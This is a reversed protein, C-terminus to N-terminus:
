KASFTRGTVSDPIIQIYNFKEGPQAPALDLIGSREIDDDFGLRVAEGKLVVSFWSDGQLRETQVAVHPHRMLNKLKTGPGSRFFLQRDTILYNIPVIDVGVPLTRFALHGIGTDGLFQWCEADSLDRTGAYQDAGRAAPGGHPEHPKDHASADM